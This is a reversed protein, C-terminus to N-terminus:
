FSIITPPTSLAHNQYRKCMEANLFRINNKITDIDTKSDVSDGEDDTGVILANGVIPVSWDPMYFGGKIDDRLLSEDDAYLCDHNEFELPVCFTSCNNGIKEYIDTYHDGLEIHYVEQKEVDIKIVKKM